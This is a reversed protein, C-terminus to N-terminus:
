PRTEVKVWAVPFHEFGSGNFEGSIGTQTANATGNFTWPFYGSATISLLVVPDEFTGSATMSVTNGGATMWGQGQVSQVGSLTLNMTWPGNSGAGTARWNGAVSPPSPPPPAVPDEEKKCGAIMMACFLVIATAKM